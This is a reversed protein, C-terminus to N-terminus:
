TTGISDAILGMSQKSREPVAASIPLTFSYDRNKSATTWPLGGAAKTPCIFPDGPEAWSPTVPHSSNFTPIAAQYGALAPVKSTTVTTM